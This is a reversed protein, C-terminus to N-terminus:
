FELGAVKDKSIVFPIAGFISIIVWSAAVTVFGERFFLNKSAPKKHSMIAGAIFCLAATFLYSFAANEKYIFGVIAPLLLFASEFKLVCGLIYLIISYNM